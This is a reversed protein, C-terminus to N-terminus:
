GGFANRFASDPIDFSWCDHHAKKSRAVIILSRKVYRFRVCSIIALPGNSGIVTIWRTATWRGKQTCHQRVIAISVQIVKKCLMDAFKKQDRYNASPQLIRYRHVFEDYSWSCNDLLILLLQLFIIINNLRSLIDFQLVFYVGCCTGVLIAPPRFGLPRSCGARRCSNYHVGHNSHSHLNPTM